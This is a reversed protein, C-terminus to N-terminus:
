RAKEEYRDRHHANAEFATVTRWVGITHTPEIPVVIIRDSDTPGVMITPARKGEGENEFYEPAGAHVQRIEKETVSHKGYQRREKAMHSTFEEDIHLEEVRGYM